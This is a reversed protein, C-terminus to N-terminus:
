HGCVAWSMVPVKSLNLDTAGQNANAAVSKFSLVGSGITVQLGYNKNRNFASCTISISSTGGTQLLVGSSTSVFGNDSAIVKSLVINGSSGVYLGYAANGNFQNNGSTSLINVGPSGPSGANFLYLGFGNITQNLSAGTNNLTIIGHSSVELGVGDNGNFNSRNVTATKGAVYNNEIWAGSADSVNNLNNSANTDNVLVNGTAYIWLGFANSNINNPGLTSLLSVNGSGECPVPLGCTDIYVGYGSTNYNAQVNNLTVNGKSVVSIGTIGNYLTSIKQASVPKPTAAMSNNLVIGQGSTNFSASVGSVSIAGNNAHISLGYASNNSFQNAGLTDLMTIGGGFSYLFAGYSTAATNNFSASVNNLTQNGTSYTVLGYYNNQNFRSSTITITNSTAGWTNNLYAGIGANNQSADVKNLSILGASTVFLGGDVANNNLFSSNAVTVAGAGTANRLYAGGGNSMSAFGNVNIAGKSWIFLGYGLNNGVARSAGLSSLVSVSGSGTCTGSSDKCNDLLIGSVSSSDPGYTAAGTNDLAQVNNLTINGKSIVTLGISGFGITNSFVSNTVTVVKAAGVQSNDLYSGFHNDNFISKDLTIAGGSRADIAKAFPNEVDVGSISISASSLCTFPSVPNQACNNLGLGFLNGNSYLGKITIAGKSIAYIGWDANGIVQNLGSANLISIAGSGKYTNSSADFQANDLDLGINGNTAAYLNNLTINGKSKVVLGNGATNHIFSSSNVTVTKPTSSTSNDAYVGYGNDISNVNSLTINGGSSIAQIGYYANNTFLGGNVTINNTTNLGVGALTNAKAEVNQLLFPGSGGVKLGFSFNLNGNFRSDKVTVGKIVSLDAGNWNVNNSAEVRDLLASGKTHVILGGITNANFSSNTITVNGTGATNDLVAGNIGANEVTVNFLDINGKHNTVNIGDGTPNTVYLNQLRLTGANGSASIGKFIYFGDVTFGKLMNQITLISGQIWPSYNSTGDWALGTLKSLNLSVSNIVDVPGPDALVGSAYITGLGNRIPFAALAAGLTAYYCLGGSCESAPGSGKFYVAGSALVNVTDRAAMPMPNGTLGVLLAGAQALADVNLAVASPAAASGGPATSPAAAPANATSSASAPGTTPPAPNAPAAAPTKPPKEAPPPPPEGAALVPSPSILSALITVVVLLPLIVTLPIRKM